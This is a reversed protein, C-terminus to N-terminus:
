LLRAHTSDTSVWFSVLIFCVFRELSEMQISLSAAAIAGQLVQIIQQIDKLETALFFLLM